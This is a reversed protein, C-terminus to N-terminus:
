VSRARESPSGKRALLAVLLWAYVFSDVLVEIGHTVILMVPVQYALVIDYAAVFVFFALALAFVLRQESANWLFIVAIAALLHLLGRLLQTSIILGPNPLALGSVGQAYYQSVVPSVISGFIFYVVPFAFIAALCRWVWQGPTRSRIADVLAPMLTRQVDPSKLLVVAISALVVCPLFLIPIMWLVGETSSFISTEITSSVGFGIFLFTALALWRIHLPGKIGRSTLLIGAALAVSGAFLYYGAIAEPAQTPMRPPSVSAFQFALRSIVLGAAFVFGCVMVRWAFDLSEKLM